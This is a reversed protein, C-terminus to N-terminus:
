NEGKVEYGFSVREDEIEPDSQTHSLIRGFDAAGAPTRADDDWHLSIPADTAPDQKLTWTAILRPM